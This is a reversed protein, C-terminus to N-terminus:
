PLDLIVGGRTRVKERVEEVLGPVKEQHERYLKDLVRECDINLDLWYYSNHGVLRCITLVMEDKLGDDEFKRRLEKDWYSVFAREVVDRPQPRDTEGEFLNLKWQVYGFHDLIWWRSLFRDRETEMSKLVFLRILEFPLTVCEPLHQLTVDMARGAAEWGQRDVETINRGHRDPRQDDILRAINDLWSAPSTRRLTGDFMEFSYNSRVFQSPQLSGAITNMIDSGQGTLGYAIEFYLDRRQKDFNAPITQRSPASQNLMIIAEQDTAMINTLQPQGDLLISTITKEDYRSTDWSDNDMKYRSYCFSNEDDIGSIIRCLQM